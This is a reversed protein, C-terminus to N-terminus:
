GNKKLWDFAARLNKAEVLGSAYGEVDYSTLKHGLNPLVMVEQGAHLAPALVDKHYAMVTTNREPYLFLCPMTLSSALALPDIAAIERYTPLYIKQGGFTGWEENKEEVQRMLTELEAQAKARNDPDPNANVQERWLRFVAKAPYATALFASPKAKVAASAAAWAGLGQAAFIVKQDKTTPQQALWAALAVTDGVRQEWSIQNPSGGSEGVGRADVRLTAFGETAFLYAVQKWTGARSYPNAPDNGDRDLPNLDQVMLITPFTGTEAPLTLTAGLSIGGIPIRFTKETFSAMTAVVAQKAVRPAETDFPVPKYKILSALLGENPLSVQVVKDAKDIWFSAMTGGAVNVDYHRLIVIEGHFPTKEIGMFQLTAKRLRMGQPFAVSLPESDDKMALARQGLVVYLCFAYSDLIAPKDPLPEEKIRTNSFRTMKFSLTKGKVLVQGANVGLDIKDNLEDQQARAYRNTIDYTNLDQDIYERASQESEVMEKNSFDDFSMRYYYSDLAKTELDLDLAPYVKLDVYGRKAKPVPFQFRVESSISWLGQKPQVEITYKEYGKKVGNLFLDFQGKEVVKSGANTSAAWAALVLVVLVRRLM